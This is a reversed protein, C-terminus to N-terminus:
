RPEVTVVVRRGLYFARKARESCKVEIDQVGDRFWDPDTSQRGRLTIAISEGSNSVKTVRCELKM